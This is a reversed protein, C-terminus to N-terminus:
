LNEQRGQVFWQFEPETQWNDHTTLLLFVGYKFHYRNYRNETFAVLKEYDYKRDVLRLSERKKVEVVLLNEDNTGRRHVIIDPFTSVTTLLDTIDEDGIRELLAKVRDKLFLVNKASYEGAKRNRNYECDVNLQPIEQQLYEALKHTIARESVDFRLLDGDQEFLKNICVQLIQKIKAQEM